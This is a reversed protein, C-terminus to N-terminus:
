TAVQEHILEQTLTAGVGEQPAPLAEAPAPPAEAPAPPSESNLAPDDPEHLLVNTLAVVDEQERRFLDTEQDIINVVDPRIAPDGDVKDRLVAMDDAVKGLKEVHARLSDKLKKRQTNAWEAPAAGVTSDPPGDTNASGGPRDASRGPGAPDIDAGGAPSADPSSSSDAPEAFAFGPALVTGLGVAVALSATRLVHM